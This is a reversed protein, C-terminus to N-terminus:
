LDPRDGRSRIAVSGTFELMCWFEFIGRMTVINTECVDLISFNQLDDTWFSKRKKEGRLFRSKCMLSSGHNFFIIMSEIGAGGLYFDM